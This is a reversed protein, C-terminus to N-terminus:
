WSRVHDSVMTRFYNEGNLTLLAQQQLVFQEEDKPQREINKQIISWLNQTAASYNANTKRVAEAYKMADNNYSAFSERVQKVANQLTMNQIPLDKNTWEWCSYVDLGYFGIKNKSIITQNYENLWQVLGAMEYNGWMSSPLKYYQKLVEIQALSCHHFFLTSSFIFLCKVILKM